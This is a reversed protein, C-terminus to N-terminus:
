SSFSIQISILLCSQMSESFVSWPLSRQGPLTSLVVLQQPRKPWLRTVIVDDRVLGMINWTEDDHPCPETPPVYFRRIVHYPWWRGCIGRLTTISFVPWFLGSVLCCYGVCSPGRLLRCKSLLKTAVSKSVGCLGVKFSPHSHLLPQEFFGTGQTWPFTNFTGNFTTTRQIWFLSAAPLTGTSRTGNEM